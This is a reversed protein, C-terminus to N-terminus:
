KQIRYKKRFRITITGAEKKLQPPVAVKVRLSRVDGGAADPSPTFQLAYQMGLDRFVDDFADSIRSEASSVFVRTRNEPLTSPASFLKGGSLSTLDDILERGSKQSMSYILPDPETISVFYILTDSTQVTSILEKLRTDDSNDLGDSFVILVKKQFKGQDARKLADLCAAHLSTINNKSHSQLSPLQRLGTAIKEADSTWDALLQFDKNFGLLFFEAGAGQSKVVRYISAAAAQLDKSGASLVSGSVDFLVGVSVREPSSKFDSISLNKGNESVQFHGAALTNIFKNRSSEVTV